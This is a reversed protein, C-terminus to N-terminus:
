NARAGDWIYRDSPQNLCRLDDIEGDEQIEGSNTLKEAFTFGTEKLSM